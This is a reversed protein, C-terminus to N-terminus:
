GGLSAAAPEEAVLQSAGPAGLHGGVPVAQITRDSKISRSGLAITWGHTGAGALAGGIRLDRRGNVPNVPWEKLYPGFMGAASVTGLEDTKGILRNVIVAANTEFTGNANEMSSRDFHEAAYLEFAFQINRTTSALAAAKSNDAASSMRPIAIAGVFAMTSLVMVLEVLSFARRSTRPRPQASRRMVARKM